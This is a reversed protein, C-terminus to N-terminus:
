ELNVKVQWHPLLKGKDWPIMVERPRYPRGGWNIMLKKGTVQEYLKVLERLQIPNKSSVVYEEWRKAQVGQVREFALMYADVVDDIYVLDIYQEGPSM